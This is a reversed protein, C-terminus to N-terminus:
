AEYYILLVIGVIGAVLTRSPAITKARAADRGLRSNRDDPLRSM